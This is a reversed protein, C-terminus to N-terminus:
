DPVWTGWILSENTNCRDPSDIHLHDLNCRKWEFVVWAQRRRFDHIQTFGRSFCSTVKEEESLANKYTNIPSSGFISKKKLLLVTRFTVSSEVDDTYRKMENTNIYSFVTGKLMHLSFHIHRLFPVHM